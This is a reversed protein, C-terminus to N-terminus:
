KKGRQIADNILGAITNSIRKEDETVVLINITNVAIDIMEGNEQVSVIVKTLLEEM